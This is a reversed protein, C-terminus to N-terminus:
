RTPGLSRRPSVSGGDGSSGGVTVPSLLGPPHAANVDTTGARGNEGGRTLRAKIRIGGLPIKSRHALLVAVELAVVFGDLRVELAEAPDLPLDAPDLPHDLLLLVADVDEGLHGRRRLRELREREAQEVVVHRVAEDVGGPLAPGLLLLLELLGGLGDRAEHLGSGKGCDTGPEWSCGM